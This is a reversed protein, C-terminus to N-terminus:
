LAGEKVDFKSRMRDGVLNFSLVTLLMVFAPILSIWPADELDSRGIDIMSGWSPEPRPVSLSLFALGGEAVIAVAVVVLAFAGVPLVVNPLIERLLIRSNKAGMARAATVFERQAFTLTAARTIRAFAPVALIAIAITVNRLSQGMFTVIAIALILAPFALMTDVVGMLTTELKGRFYGAVLGILAGGLMGLGVSVIGVTLSVQAGHILRSLIDRGNGDTGLLHDASPPEKLATFDGRIPDQIPLFDATLACFFVLAIWGVPLWFGFGLKRRGAPVPQGPTLVAEVGASWSAEVELDPSGPTYGTSLDHPQGPPLASSSPRAEPM